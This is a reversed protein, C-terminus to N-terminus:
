CNQNEARVPMLAAIVKRFWRSTELISSLHRPSDFGIQAFNGFDRKSEPNDLNRCRREALCATVADRHRQVPAIEDTSGYEERQEDQEDDGLDLRVFKM